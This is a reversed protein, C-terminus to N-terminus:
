REEISQLLQGVEEPSLGEWLYKKMDVRYAPVTVNVGELELLEAQLLNKEGPSAVRIVGEKNVVRQWPVNAFEPEHMRHRLNRLAYGVARSAQPKWLMSAIRGYSTVKGRPICRVVAYVKEYFSVM